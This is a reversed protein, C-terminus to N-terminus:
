VVSRSTDTRHDDIDNTRWGAQDQPRVPASLDIRWAIVMSRGNPAESLLHKDSRSHQSERQPANAAPRLLDGWDFRHHESTFRVFDASSGPLSGHVPDVDGLLVLFGEVLGDRDESGTLQDTAARRLAWGGEDDGPDRVVSRAFDARSGWVERGDHRDRHVVQRHDTIDHDPDPFDGTIRASYSDSWLSLVRQYARSLWGPEVASEQKQRRVRDFEQPDVNTCAVLMSHPPPLDFVLDEASVAVSADDLDAGFPRHLFETIVRRHDAFQCSIGYLRLVESAYHRSRVEVRHREANLQELRRLSETMRRAPFSLLTSGAALVLAGVLFWGIPWIAPDSARTAEFPTVFEWLDALYPWRQDVAFVAVVLLSLLLLATIRRASKQAKLADEYESDLVPLVCNKFFGRRAEALGSGIIGVLREMLTDRHQAAHEVTTSASDTSEIRDQAHDRQPTNVRGSSGLDVRSTTPTVETPSRDFWLQGPEAKRTGADEAAEDTGEDPKDSGEDPKDSGEDVDDSREDVDDSREDPKDSGEDVTDSRAGASPALDTRPEPGPLIDSSDQPAYLPAVGTPDTWILRRPDESTGQTPHSVGGPLPSGDVLGFMVERMTKYADVSSGAARVAGPAPLFDSREIQQVLVHLDVTDALRLRAVGDNDEELGGTRDALRNLADEVASIDVPTLVKAVLGRLLNFRSTRLSDPLTAPRECRFGGERALREAIELPPVADPQAREVEATQPLPWPPSNPMADPSAYRDASPTHLIRMQCHVFRVPQTNGDRRDPEIELGSEIGCWGGAVSLAVMACLSLPEGELARVKFLSEHAEVRSDHVLHYDWAPSSDEPGCVGEANAIQVTMSRFTIGSALLDALKERCQEEAERVQIRSVESDAGRPHRLIALWVEQRQRRSFASGLTTPKWEADANHWCSTRHPQELLDSASLWVVDGFLGMACWQALVETVPATLEDSDASLLVVLRGGATM